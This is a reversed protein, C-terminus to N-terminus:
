LERIIIFANGDAYASRCLDYNWNSKDTQIDTDTQAVVKPRGSDTVEIQKCLYRIEVVDQNKHTEHNNFWSLFDFFTM